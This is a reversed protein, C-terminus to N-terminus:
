ERIIVPIIVPDWEKEGLFVHWSTFLIQAPKDRMLILVRGDYLLVLLLETKNGTWIQEFARQIWSWRSFINSSVNSLSDIM